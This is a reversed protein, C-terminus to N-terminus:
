DLAPRILALMRRVYAGLSGEAGAHYWCEIATVAGWILGAVVVRAEEASYDHQPSAVVLESLQDIWQEVAPFTAARLTPNDFWLRTRRLTLEADRQFHDHDILALAEEAVAWLDQDELAEAIAEFVVDDHEDHMVLGEKTRFYRYVTSPSVEAAAAIEEVRVQDFGRDEFLEIATAQITRMTAAKKRDRLSEVM